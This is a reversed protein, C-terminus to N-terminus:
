YCQAIMWVNAFRRAKLDEQRIWFYLCGGDGWMVGRPEDTDIMALLVWDKAGAGLKEARPDNYGRGDGCYLGHSVLQCELAMDGSQIPVANGLLQHMPKNRELYEYVIADFREQLEASLEEYGEVKQPESPLSQIAQFRLPVPQLRAEEPLTAPWNRTKTAVPEEPLYVVQWSGKDQPDFGWTSQNADYFFLLLGTAPLEARPVVAQLDKLNVQALFMLNTGRWAPWNMHAPLAPQGGFKSNTPKVVLGNNVTGIRVAPTLQKELRVAVGALKQSKLCTLLQAHTVLGKEPFYAVKKLSADAVVVGAVGIWGLWLAIIRM